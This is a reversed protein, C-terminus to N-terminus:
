EHAKPKEDKNFIDYYLAMAQCTQTDGKVILTDKDIGNGVVGM